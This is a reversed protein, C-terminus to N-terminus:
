ELFRCFLVHRPVKPPHASDMVERLGSDGPHSVQFRSTFVAADPSLEDADNKIKIAFSPIAEFSRSAVPCRCKSPDPSPAHEDHSCADCCRPESHLRNVTGAPIACCCGCRQALPLVGMGLCCFMVGVRLIPECM